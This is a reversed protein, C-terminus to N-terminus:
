QPRKKNLNVIESFHAFQNMMRYYSYKIGFITRKVGAPPAGDIVLIDLWAGTRVQKEANNLLFEKNKNFIQAVLTIHDSRTNYTSLYLDKKLLSPAIQLFKEFDPRPMAMDIDDDWPIFGQHRVAGLLSGGWVYYRLKQEDCIRVFEKLIDYEELQLRSLKEIM